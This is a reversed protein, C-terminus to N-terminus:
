LADGSKLNFLAAEALNFYTESAKYLPLEQFQVWLLASWESTTNEGYAYGEEVSEGSLLPM